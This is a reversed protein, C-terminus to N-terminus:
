RSKQLALSCFSYDYVFDGHYTWDHGGFLQFGHAHTLVEAVGLRWGYQNCIRKRMWRFHFRDHPWDDVPDDCADMTLFLLGGPALLASCAALFAPLDDVHELTSISVIGSVPQPQSVAYAEVGLNISPDIIATPIGTEELLRALPSGAGGVDLFQPTGGPHQLIVEAYWAGAARLAMAYEFRRHFHQTALEAGGHAEVLAVETALEAYDRAPDLTKSLPYTRTAM